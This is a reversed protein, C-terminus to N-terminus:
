NSKSAGGMHQYHTFIMSTEDVLSFAELAKPNSMVQESAQKALAENEWVIFDIWRGMDQSYYYDRSIFGVFGTVIDNLSAMTQQQQEFSVDSKYQLSIIEFCHTLHAQHSFLM